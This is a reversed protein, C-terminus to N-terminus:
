PWTVVRFHFPRHRRFAKAITPELCPNVVHSVLNGAPYLLKSSFHGNSDFKSIYPVHMTFSVNCNWKWKYCMAIFMWIEYAIIASWYEWVYLGGREVMVVRSLHCSVWHSVMWMEVVLSRRERGNTSIYWHPSHMDRTLHTTKMAVLSPM